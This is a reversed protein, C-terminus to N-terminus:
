QRYQVHGREEHQERERSAPEQPRERRVPRRAEEEEHEIDEPTLQGIVGTYILAHLVMLLSSCISSKM